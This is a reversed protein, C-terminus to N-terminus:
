DVQASAIRNANAMVSLTITTAPISPFVTSDVVHVRKFGTPRGLIDTEFERPATSMPFTGGSHFGRGPAPVHLMPTAAIGRLSRWNSRLTRAVRSLLKKTPESMVQGELRLERRDGGNPRSLTIDISPSLDSHLYGQLVLMRGLIPGAIPYVPGLMKRLAAVYLDNFTYVQLHVTKDCVTPNMIELFVQSLTHLQETAVGPSGALRLMPLLFYCSDALTVPRDFAGLSELLIQTSSIAGAALYVREGVFDKLPSGDKRRAGIRVTGGSENLKTVIVDPVYHFNPNALLVPLAFSSNYILDNPCGYMCLGCYVCGPLNGRTGARVAIRSAGFAIGASDLRAKNRRLDALFSETQRSSRLPVARETYLPFKCALEDITASVDMRGLVARYHPALDDITIPWRQIDDQLYPLMASGWVNSFGGKGLSPTTDSNVRALTALSEVHRYPFDSGFVYKVGVGKRDPAVNHKLFAVRPGRWLSPDVARLEEVARRRHAELETGADLMTVPVGRDLLATAASVGAPGSGIVYNM